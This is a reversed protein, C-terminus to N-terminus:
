RGGRGDIYKAGDWWRRRQCHSGNVVIIGVVVVAMAAMAEAVMGNDDDITAPFVGNGSGGNVAVVM